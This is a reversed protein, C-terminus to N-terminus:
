GQAQTAEDHAALHKGLHNWLNRCGYTGPDSENYLAVAKTNDRLFTTLDDTTLDLPADVEFVAEVYEWGDCDLREVGYEAKLWAEIVLSRADLWESRGDDDLGAPMFPVLCEQPSLAVSATLALTQDGAEQHINIIQFVEDAHEYVSLTAGGESDLEGVLPGPTDDAPHTHTPEATANM